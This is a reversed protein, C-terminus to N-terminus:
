ANDELLALKREAEARQVPWNDSIGAARLTEKDEETDGLVSYLAGGRHAYLQCAPPSGPSAFTGNQVIIFQRNTM